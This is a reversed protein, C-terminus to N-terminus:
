GFSRCISLRCHQRPEGVAARRAGQCYNDRSELRFAATGGTRVIGGHLLRSIRDLVKSHTCM